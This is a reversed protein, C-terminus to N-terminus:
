IRPSRYLIIQFVAGPLSDPHGNELVTLSGGMSEILARSIDLGIGSGLTQQTRQSRYGRSFISERESSLVGPGNDEILITVGVGIARDNPYARVRITPSPNMANTQGSYGMQVYTIANDLVNSIAEQLAQPCILVGPLESEIDLGEVEFHIGRDSALVKLSQLIPELIDSIFTMTLPRKSGRTLWTSSANRDMSVTEKEEKWGLRHQIPVLAADNTKQEATPPPLFLTQSRLSTIEMEHIMDNMPLLLDAARASQLVMHDALKKLDMNSQFNNNNYINSTFTTNGPQGETTTTTFGYDPVHDINNDDKNVRHIAIQRQLLKAFTRVAQLPNKIQHLTDSVAVRFQENQSRYMNRDRDLSLALALSQGARSIQRKDEETWSYLPVPPPAPWVLLIGLTSDGQYLPLSLAANGMRMNTSSMSDYMVEEVSGIAISSSSSASPDLVTDIAPYRSTVFPYTPILNKAHTFGPLKSLTHPIAPPIGSESDSAIFIRESTTTFPYVIAPLFELQGNSSNEQPLYLAISRIKKRKEIERNQQSESHCNNTPYYISNALLEFQSQALSVFIQSPMTPFPGMRPKPYGEKDNSNLSPDNYFLSSRFRKRSVIDKSFPNFQRHHPEIIFVGRETPQPLHFCIGTDTLLFLAVYLKSNLRRRRM